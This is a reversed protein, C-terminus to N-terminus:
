IMRRMFFVGMGLLLVGMAMLGWTGLTPISNPNNPQMVYHSSGQSPSWTQGGDMSIETFVDFFSSIQYNGGGIPRIVTQGTSALTPSERIMTGAPLTGGSLDLSILETDYVKSVGDTHSFKQKETVDGQVDFLGLTSPSGEVHFTRRGNRFVYGALDAPPPYHTTSLDLSSKTFSSANAYITTGPDLYTSGVPPLDNSPVMYVPPNAQLIYRSSGNSPSWTLGADLSIETFIDFFSNIEFSGNGLTTITIEGTSIFTPSERIIFTPPVPTNGLVYLSDIVM